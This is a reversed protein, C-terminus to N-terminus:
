INEIASLMREALITKDFEQKAIKAANMGMKKLQEPSDTIEILKDALANANNPDVTFGVEHEKVFANMWGNTTQIIPVGAALSEFFKNPSSTNLVKTDKLPALCILAHQVICVLDNKPMLEMMILNDLGTAEKRQMLALKLQGDGILVIKIDERGKNKLISAADFMWEVNNVMGINGTYLAYKFPEFNNISM